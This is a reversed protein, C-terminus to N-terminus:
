RYRREDAALRWKECAVPPLGRVPRFCRPVSRETWAAVRRLTNERAINGGQSPTTLGRTKAVRLVQPNGLSHSVATLTARRPELLDPRRACFSAFPGLPTM